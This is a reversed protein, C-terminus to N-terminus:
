LYADSNEPKIRLCFRKAADLIDDTSRPCRSRRMSNPTRRRSLCSRGSFPAGQYPQAPCLFTTSLSAASLGKKARRAIAKVRTTMHPRGTQGFTGPKRAFRAIRFGFTVCHTLGPAAQLLGAPAIKSYIYVLNNFIFKIQARLMPYLVRPQCCRQKGIM